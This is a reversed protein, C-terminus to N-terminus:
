QGGPVRGQAAAVLQALHSAEHRAFYAAQSLVAVHGGAAPRGGRGCRADALARRPDGPPPRRGRNRDFLEGATLGTRVTGEDSAPTESWVARAALDPEDEALLRGVREAFLQEAFLLHELAERVSWAGPAPPRALDVEDRGALAAAVRGSGAALTAVITGPEAPELYWVPLHERFSIAPSECTPCAAPVDEGLFLDGCVRCTRAAPAADLPVTAGVRAAAEVADLSVLFADPYDAGLERRVAAVADSLEAAGVPAHADAHRLLERELAARALKAGNYGGEGDLGRALAALRGIRELRQEM